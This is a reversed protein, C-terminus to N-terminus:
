RNVREKLTRTARFVLMTRSPIDIPGTGPVTRTTARMIRPEFIGFGRLVTKHGNRIRDAIEDLCAGFVEAVGKADLEDHFVDGDLLRDAVAQCFEKELLTALPRAADGPDEDPDPAEPM